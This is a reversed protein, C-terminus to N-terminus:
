RNGRINQCMMDQVRPNIAIHVSANFACGRACYAARLYEEGRFWNSLGDATKIRMCYKTRAGTFDPTIVMADDPANSISMVHTELLQVGYIEQFRVQAAAFMQQVGPINFIHAGRYSQVAHGDVSIGGNDIVMYQGALGTVNKGFLNRIHEIFRM